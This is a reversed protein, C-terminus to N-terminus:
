LNYNERIDEIVSKVGSEEEKKEEKPETVEDVTDLIKKKAPHLIEELLEDASAVAYVGILTVFIKQIGQMILKAVRGSKLITSFIGANKTLGQINNSKKKMGWEIIKELAGEAKNFDNDSPMDGPGLGLHKDIVKGLDRVGFGLLHSGVTSLLMPVWGVGMMPSAYIAVSFLNEFPGRNEKWVKSVWDKIADQLEARKSIM